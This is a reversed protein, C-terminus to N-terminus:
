SLMSERNQDNLHPALLCVSTLTLVGNALMELIEPCREAARAAAIRSYAAQESLRLRQTCFAFLSSCGVSLHLGRRQVEILLALPDDTGRREPAAVSETAELLRADSMQSIEAGTM